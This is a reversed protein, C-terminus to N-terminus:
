IECTCGGKVVSHCVAICTFLMPAHCRMFLQSINMVYNNSKLKNRISRRGEQAPRSAGVAGTPFM